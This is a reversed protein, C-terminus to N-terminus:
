LNVREATAFGRSGPLIQVVTATSLPSELYFM